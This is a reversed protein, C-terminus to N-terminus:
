NVGGGCLNATGGGGCSQPAVCMGCDLVKGCGDALSGCNAGAGGCTRPVCPPAGCLGNVCPVGAQCPCNNTAGCGDAVPGCVSGPAPMPCGTPNCMAVGCVNAGGGGCTGMACIGCDLIGGCGDGLKGCQGASCTKKTCAPAGCQSPVGGGGCSEGPPCPGCDLPGGCGDGALGCGLGQAACTKPVCAPPGSSSVCSALDFLFYALVKEQSTFPTPSAGGCEAPFVANFTNGISVHFDSYLVRGCQLAAAKTTDTNFTYHMPADDAAPTGASVSGVCKLSTCVGTECDAAKTCAKGNDATTYLWRQAYPQSVGGVTHTPVVGSTSLNPSTPNIDKRPETLAIMPPSTSSLANVPAYPAAYTGSIPAVPAQLWTSFLVGKPFSTDLPATVTGNDWSTESTPVWWTNVTGSWDSTFGTSGTGAVNYLWVYSYHTAFVRGGKNGYALVNARAASPKNVQQGVCGFIAADFKDIEATCSAGACAAWTDGATAYAGNGTSGNLSFHTADVVTITWSGNASTTGKVGAITAIAGTALGHAASTTIVIPSANTAGNINGSANFAAPNYLTSAAPSGGSITAGNDQYLRIRGTGNGDTFEADAVGMKRFVCELGDVQGTSIATLPIDGETQVRPLAASLHDAAPRAAGGLFTTQAAPNVAPVKNNVCATTAITLQKRWKGLQVVVPINTVKAPDSVPMNPLFFHGNADTTTSVLPSGSATACTECKVGPTFAAVVGNPVYVVANPVPLVGNPSTVYGEISTTGGGPCTVQQTCLGTCGAPTGCTNAVGAGGCSQGPGCISPAPAPPWCDVSGGCGDAIFGCNQTGCTKKTCPPAGCLSATGGGGCTQGAVACTVPCTILGGCGDAIPGCDGVACTTKTPVCVGGDPGGVGGAGCKSPGGLGCSSGAECTGCNLPGGCGDGAQGCELSQQACTKTACAPKGCTSAVGGGGCTEGVPCSTGCQVVGGCGDGIPGCNAKATACTQKVCSSPGGENGGGDAPPNFTGIPPAGAEDLNANPDVFQSSDSSGCAVAVAAVAAAICLSRVAIATRM